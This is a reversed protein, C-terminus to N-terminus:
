LWDQRGECGCFHIVRDAGSVLFVLFAATQSCLFTINEDPGGDAEHVKVLPMAEMGPFGVMNLDEVGITPCGEERLSVNARAAMDELVINSHKFMDSPNLKASHLAVHLEANGEVGIYQSDSLQLSINPILHYSPTFKNIIQHDCDACKITRAPM